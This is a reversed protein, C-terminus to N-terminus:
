LASLHQRYELPTMGTEAKFLKIFHNVNEIGVNGAIEGVLQDTSVLLLRANHLRVRNLYKIPSSGFHQAFERCLRYKSVKYNASLVDLSYERSYLLDFEDKISLLYTPTAAPLQSSLDETQLLASLLATVHGNVFLEEICSSTKKIQILRHLNDLLPSDASLVFHSRSLKEKYFPLIDGHLYFIWAELPADSARFRIEDNSSHFLLSGSPLATTEDNYRYTSEGSQIYIMRYVRANDVSSEYSLISTVLEHPPCSLHVVDALGVLSHNSYTTIEESFNLLFM